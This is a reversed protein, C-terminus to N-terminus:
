KTIIYKYIIENQWLLPNKIEDMVILYISAGCSIFLHKSKNPDIENKNHEM